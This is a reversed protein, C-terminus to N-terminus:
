QIDRSCSRWQEPMRRHIRGLEPLISSRAGVSSTAYDNRGPNLNGTVETTETSTSDRSVLVSLVVGTPSSTLIGTSAEQYGSSVAAPPSSVLPVSSQTQRHMEAISAHGEEQGQYGGPHLRTYRWVPSGGWSPYATVISNSLCRCELRAAM